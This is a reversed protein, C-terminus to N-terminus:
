GIVGFSEHLVRPVTHGFRYSNGSDLNSLTMVAPSFLHPDIKYFDGGCRKFIEVFPEGHDPSASSPIKPGIEQLSADDGRVWLTVEGGYLIADNTRGIGTLDDAAVPPLPAVGFGSEVRALDFGLEFLKHMATEVSRAVVQVNGAQSATPAVLLTLRDAQCGCKEALELCVEPTPPAASELVGVACDSTERYDIAEFLDERAAAARMPGSGMAFYKEVSVQWGAYQAAMCALLPHDTTTAIAPGLSLERNVPICRVRGLGAMCIEALRLGAELGGKANVGLDIIRTGCDSREVGIRLRDIDDVIAECLQQARGNLNM